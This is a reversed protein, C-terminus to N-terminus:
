SLPPCRQVATRNHCINLVGGGVERVGYRGLETKVVGPHLANVTINSTPGLRRVLEYSFMINALKSQGYAEWADYSRDRMLDDFDIKGFLHAASAVNILRVPRPFSRLETLCLRCQAIAPFSLRSYPM